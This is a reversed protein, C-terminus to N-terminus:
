IIIYSLDLEDTHISYTINNDNLLKITTPFHEITYEFLIFEFNNFMKSKIENEIFFETSDSIYHIEHDPLISQLKSYTLKM